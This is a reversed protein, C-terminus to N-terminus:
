LLSSLQTLSAFPSVTPSEIELYFGIAVCENQQSFSLLRNRPIYMLDLSKSDITKKNKQDRHVQIHVVQSPQWQSAM